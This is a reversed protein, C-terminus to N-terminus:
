FDGFRSFGLHAKQGEGLSRDDDVLRQFFAAVQVQLRQGHHHEVGAALELRHLALVPRAQQPGLDRRAFGPAREAHPEAAALEGPAAPPLAPPEASLAPQADRRSLPIYRGTLGDYEFVTTGEVLRYPYADIQPPVPAPPPGYVQGAPTVTRHYRVGRLEETTSGAR